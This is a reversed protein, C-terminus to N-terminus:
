KAYKKYIFKTTYYNIPFVILLACIPVLLSTLYSAMTEATMGFCINLVFVVVSALLFVVFNIIANYKLTAKRSVVCKYRIFLIIAYVAFLAPITYYLFNSTTMLNGTASAIWYILASSIASLVFLIISSIFKLFNTNHKREVVTRKYEKFELGHSNYYNKLTEYDAFTNTAREVKQMKVEKPKEINEAKKEMIKSVMDNYTPELKSDRMPAPLNEDSVNIEINPPTIRKQYPIYDLKETIFTADDKVDEVIEQQPKTYIDDNTSKNVMNSYSNNDYHSQKSALLSAKLSAVKEEFDDEKKEYVVPMEIQNDSFSKRNRYKKLESSSDYIKKNQALQSPTLTENADLFKGDDKAKEEEEKKFTFFDIQNDIVDSEEKKEEVKIPEKPEAPKAYDFLNKQELFVPKQEGEEEEELERQNLVEFNIGAFEKRLIELNEKGEDTLAYYHRKGGFESEGWFSSSVLGKKELRTLCSYLTPKKLIYGGHTKKTIYEIIELGYKSSDSLSDLILYQVQGNSTFAM